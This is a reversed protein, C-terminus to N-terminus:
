TFIPEFDIESIAAEFNEPKSDPEFRSAADLIRPLLHIDGATNLFLKPRTFVWHVLADIKDQEEVPRYWTNRNKEHGEWSTHAITKIAQVAVKREQCTAMLAEFGAAYDPNRMLLPNYPLLVSDFDFRELSRQHFDVVQLGHGTVGLYRTLGQERAKLFAELAGGPGMATQWGEEDVLFHMQWLDVSDVQLRELSQELERWAGDYTREETKTALFFDKRHEKMWPGLRVEAKGYSAAADIHNIGYKLLVELTQDAEDQTVDWFAAAGFLTRTSLHGTRGFDLKPIM